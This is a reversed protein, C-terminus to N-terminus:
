ENTWMAIVRPYYLLGLAATSLSCDWKTWLFILTSSIWLNYEKGSVALIVSELFSSLVQAKYEPPETNLDRGRRNAIRVLTKRQKEWDWWTFASITIQVGGVLDKGIWWWESIVSVDISYHRSISFADYFLSGVLWSCNFLRFTYFLLAYLILRLVQRSSVM